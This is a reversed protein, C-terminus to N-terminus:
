IFGVRILGTEPFCRVSSTQLQGTTVSSTFPLMVWGGVGSESRFVQSRSGRGRETVELDGSSDQHSGLECAKRTTAPQSKGPTASGGSAAAAALRPPPLTGPSSLKCPGGGARQSRWRSYSPSRGPRPPVPLMRSRYLDPGSRGSHQTHARSGSRAGTRLLGWRQFLLPVEPGQGSFTTRRGGPRVEPAELQWNCCEWFPAPEDSLDLFIVCM